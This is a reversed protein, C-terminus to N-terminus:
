DVQMLVKLVLVLQAQQLSLLKELILVHVLLVTVLRVLIAFAM